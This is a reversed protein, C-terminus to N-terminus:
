EIVEILKKFRENDYLSEFDPDRLVCDILDPNLQLASEIDNMALEDEKYISYCCARNYYLDGHKINTIGEKLIDIANGYDSREIYIASLNLYIYPYRPNQDKSRIYYEIAMKHNELRNYIVGMNFLSRYFNPNIDISKKVMLFAK